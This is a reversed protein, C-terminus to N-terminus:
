STTPCNCLDKPVNDSVVSAWFEIHTTNAILMWRGENIELYQYRSCIFHTGGVTHRTYMDIKRGREM